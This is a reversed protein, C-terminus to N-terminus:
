ELINVLFGTPKTCLKQASATHIDYTTRWHFRARLRTRTDDLCWRCKVVCQGCMTQVLNWGWFYKWNFLLAVARSFLPGLHGPHPTEAGRRPDGVTINLANWNCCYLGWLTIHENHLFRNYEFSSITVSLPRNWSCHKLHAWQLSVRLYLSM